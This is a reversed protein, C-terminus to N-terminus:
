QQGQPGEPGSLMFTAKVKCPILVPPQSVQALVRDIGGKVNGTAYGKRNGKPDPM